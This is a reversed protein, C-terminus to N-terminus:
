SCETSDEAYVPLALGAEVQGPTLGDSDQYTRDLARHANYTLQFDDNEDVAEPPLQRGAALGFRFDLGERTDTHLDAPEAESQGAWTVEVTDFTTVLGRVSGETLVDAGHVEVITNGDADTGYCLVGDSADAEAPGASFVAERMRYDVSAVVTASHTDRTATVEFGVHGNRYRWDSTATRSLTWTRNPTAGDPDLTVPGEQTGGYSYEAPLTATVEEVPHRTTVVLKAGQGADEEDIVDGDANFILKNDLKGNAAEDSPTHLYAYPPDAEVSRIAAFNEDAEAARTSEHRVTREQSGDQWTVIAVLRVFDQQVGGEEAWTIHSRVTYTMGDRTIEELPTPRPDGPVPRGGDEFTVTDEGEFTSVYDADTESFGVKRWDFRRLEELTDNAVANGTVRSQDQRLSGLSATLVSALASLVVTLILMAVMVEVLTM